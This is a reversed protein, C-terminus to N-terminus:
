CFDRFTSCVLYLEEMLQRRVVSPLRAIGSGRASKHIHVCDRDLDM